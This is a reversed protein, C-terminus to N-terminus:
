PKRKTKYVLNNIKDSLEQGIQDWCFRWEWNDGITGPTNMRHNSNLGLFDQLPIIASRADSEYVMEIHKWAANIQEQQSSFREGLENELWGVITDNDHTGTYAVTNKNYLPVRFKHDPENHIAFQLISMGPYDFKLKLEEVESTIVGLDEAIIQPDYKDQLNSEITNFFKEGPGKVWTGNVATDESGPIEWYAEFGRFHDIRVVDSLQMLVKIREIWWRYNDQELENWDYHPNGWLQGNESFYDPPVGAKKAPKGQSDLEFYHKLAWVDSSDHAVFIPLDGIIHINQKNTYNKLSHWQNFFIYQLFKHYDITNALKERYKALAHPKRWIIEEDDWQHWPKYNFHAKLAMFMAYDELWYSHQSIFERFDHSEKGGNDIFNEFAAQLLPEKLQYTKEYDVYNTQKQQAESLRNQTLLGQETLKDLSILLPNGAFASFCQYPSNGYGPPNLPLIQWFKQGSDRLFDVFRYAEKGLDGIGYPSPLSTPHLLIGANREFNANGQYRDALLLKCELPELTIELYGDNDTSVINYDELPDVFSQGSNTGTVESIHIKLNKRERPNRNLVIVATNNLRKQHFRDQNQSIKRRYLLIDKDLDQQSDSVTTVLSFDGTRLVDYHNRIATLKRFWSVLEQDENGWPYTKRNDPDQYGELGAEDGYYISPIGPFTMQWLTLLKLRKKAISDLDERLDDPTNDKLVTLVREVDHSGLLNMATYFYDEPYNEMLSLVRRATEQSSNHDLVFDLMINRLPYNTVSDLEKGLLYQRRRDYSIKNSADEWVEGIVISEPDQSKLTQYFNQLFEDPIEDIVDLRWGKAGHRFWHKLVSNDDSIIFNQYDPNHEEVNPLNDIGWWSEYKHPHELFRYWNYYPSEKSQYAGLSPYSGYKNFYLSNSGTHSFVGDLIVKINMNEAEKCFQRFEENNGIMADIKHYDGVDYRHNSEAEFIPNFYIISVGLKKLYVLKQRVGELNGGFFDWRLIKGEQDRVYLPSNDWHSHLFSNRKPNSVTGDENGNNFRDIFIQYIVADKLWNPIQLDQEHVTVQYGLPEQHSEQGPGGSLEQNNGFYVKTENSVVTFTYWFLGPTDPSKISAEYFYGTLEEKYISGNGNDYDIQDCDNESIGTQYMPYAVKNGQDDICNALVQLEKPNTTRIYLRLLIEKNISVAGFPKRYLPNHSDHFLKIPTEM